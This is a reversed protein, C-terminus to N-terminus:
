YNTNNLQNTTRISYSLYKSEDYDVFMGEIKRIKCKANNGNQPVFLKSVAFRDYVTHIKTIKMWVVYAAACVDM